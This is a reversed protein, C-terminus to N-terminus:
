PIVQPPKPNWSGHSIWQDVLWRTLGPAAVSTGNMALRAGSRTGGGLLGRLARSRDASALTDPAPEPRTPNLHPGASSYTAPLRDSQRLAGVVWARNGTAIGSLTHSRRVYSASGPPDEVLLRGAHDRRTYDPDDFYSQRGRVPRGAPTDGRRIWAHLEVESQGDPNRVEVTWLGSPAVGSISGSLDITTPAITLRVCQRMPAPSKLYRASVITHPALVAPDGLHQPTVKVSHSGCPSRLTVELGSAGAPFWIEMASPSQSGPQLRWALHQSALPGLRAHAHTRTQRANGAALVVQLPTRRPRMLVMLTDLAQELLGTGDHPGEHPGYSLNVVVPLTGEAFRRLSHARVLIYVLGLLAHATLQSCAPDGVAEDPMDVAIIPVRELYGNGPVQGTATDLVHTGHARIRGLSKLGPRSFDLGGISRYVGDEDGRMRDLADDIEQGTLERGPSSWGTSATLMSQQWLYAIRTRGAHRFRDSAFAIGQDIVGVVVRRPRASGSAMEHDAVESKWDPGVYRGVGGPLRVSPGLEARVVTKHWEPRNVWDALRKRLIYIVGFPFAEDGEHPESELLEALDLLLAPVRVQETVEKEDGARDGMLWRLGLFARLPNSGPDGGLVRSARFEVLLPTWEDGAAGTGATAADWEVDPQWAGPMPAESEEVTGSMLAGGIAM